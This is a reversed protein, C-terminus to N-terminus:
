DIRYPVRSQRTRSPTRRAARPTPARVLAQEFLLISDDDDVQFTQVPDSPALEPHQSTDLEVRLSRHPPTRILVHSTGDPQTMGVLEGGVNIPLGATSPGSTRVVLVAMRELPECQATLQIGTSDARPKREASAHLDRLILQRRADVTRYAPPCAVSLSVAQGSHGTLSVLLEGADNTV